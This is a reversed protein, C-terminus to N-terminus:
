PSCKIMHNLIGVKFVDSATNAGCPTGGQTVGWMGLLQDVPSNASVLLTTAKVAKSKILVCVGFTNKWRLQSCLDAGPRAPFGRFSAGSHANAGVLWLATLAGLCGM